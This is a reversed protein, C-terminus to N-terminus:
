RLLCFAGSEEAAQLEAKLRGLATAAECPQESLECEVARIIQQCYRELESSAPWASSICEQQVARLTKDLEQFRTATEILTLRRAILDQLIQQKAQARALLRASHESLRRGLELEEQLHARFEPLRTLESGMPGLWAPLALALRSGGLALTSAGVFLSRTGIM